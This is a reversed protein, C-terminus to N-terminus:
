IDDIYDVSYFTLGGHKAYAYEIVRCEIEYQRQNESLYNGNELYPFCWEIETGDACNAIARWMGM